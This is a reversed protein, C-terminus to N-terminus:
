WGAETNQGKSTLLCHSSPIFLYCLFFLSHDYPTHYFPLLSDPQMDSDRHWLIVQAIGSIM